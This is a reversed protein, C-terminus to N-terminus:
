HYRGVNWVVAAGLSGEGNRIVFCKRKRMEKM